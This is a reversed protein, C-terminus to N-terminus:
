KRPLANNKKLKKAKAVSDARAKKKTALNTKLKVRKAISDAKIKNLRAISDAARKALKENIKNQKIQELSDIKARIKLSSDSKAKIVKTVAEYIEFLQDPKNSYYTFSKKFQVSDTQHQKFIYLYRNNGYKFLSDPDQSVEFLSGDAIHMDILLGTMREHNLIGAPTQPGCSLLYVPILFFLVKYIRM